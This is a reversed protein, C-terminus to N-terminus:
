RAEPTRPRYVRVVAQVHARKEVLESRAAIYRRFEAPLGEDGALAEGEFSSVMIIHRPNGDILQEYTQEPTTAPVVNMGATAGGYYHMLPPRQFDPLIILGDGPRGLEVVDQFAETLQYLKPNGKDHVQNVSAAVALAILAAGLATKAHCPRVLGWLAGALVYLPGVAVTLYRPDFVNRAVISAGILIAPPLAILVVLGSIRWPVTRIRPLLAFGLLCLAPWGATLVGIISPSHFGVLMEVAASLASFLDPEPYEPGIGNAERHLAVYGAWPLFAIVAATLAAIIALAPRRERGGRAVLVLALLGLAAFFLTGFYHTYLLATGSVSLGLLARWSTGRGLLRWALWGAMATFALMQTYMRAESGYWVAFPGISALVATPLVSRNPFAERSWGVLAVLAVLSWGMSLSRIALASDGFWGVWYHLTVHFLPPHFGDVQTQLVGALPREVQFVSIAEDLWLSREAAYLRLLIAVGTLGLALSVQLVRTFPVVAAVARRPLRLAASGM